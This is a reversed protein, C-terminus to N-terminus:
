RRFYVLLALGVTPKIYLLTKRNVCICVNIKEMLLPSISITLGQQPVSEIMLAPHLRNEEESGDGKM